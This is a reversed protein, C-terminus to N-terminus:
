IASAVRVQSTEHIPTGEGARTVKVETIAHANCVLQQIRRLLLGGIYIETDCLDLNAHKPVTKDWVSHLELKSFDKSILEEDYHHINSTDNNLRDSDAHVAPVTYTLCNQKSIVDNLRDNLNSNTERVVNECDSSQNSETNESLAKDYCKDWDTSLESEQKPATSCKFWKSHQLIRLLLVATQFPFNSFFRFTCLFM